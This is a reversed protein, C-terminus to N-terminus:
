KGTYLESTKWIGNEYAIVFAAKQWEKAGANQRPNEKQEATRTEYYICGNGQATLCCIDMEQRQKEGAGKSVWLAGDHRAYVTDFIDEFRSSFYLHFGQRIQSVTLEEPLLKQRQEKDYEEAFGKAQLGGGATYLDYLSLSQYYMLVGLVAKERMNMEKQPTSCQLAIHESPVYGEHGNARIKLWRDAANYINGQVTMATVKVQAGEPLRILQRSDSNAAEYMTISEAGYVVGDAKCPIM